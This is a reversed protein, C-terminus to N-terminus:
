KSKESIEKLKLLDEKSLNRVDVANTNEVSGRLDIHTTEKEKGLVHNMFWDIKVSDGDDVSNKITQLLMLDIVPITKRKLLKKLDTINLLMYKNIMNKFQTRTKLSLEREEASMPPRGFGVSERHGKQFIHGTLKRKKKKM